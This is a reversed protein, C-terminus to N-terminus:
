MQLCNLHLLRARVMSALALKISFLVLPKPAQATSSSIVYSLGLKAEPASAFATGFQALNLSFKDITGSATLESGANVSAM